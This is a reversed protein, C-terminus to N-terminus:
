SLNQIQIADNELSDIFRPVVPENCLKYMDIFLILIMHFLLGGGHASHDLANGSVAGQREGSVM